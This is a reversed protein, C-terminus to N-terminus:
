TLVNGDHAHGDRFKTMLDVIQEAKEPSTGILAQFQSPRKGYCLYGICGIINLQEEDINLDISGNPNRLIRM